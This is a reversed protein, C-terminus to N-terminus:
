GRSLSPSAAPVVRTAQQAQPDRTWDALVAAHGRSLRFPSAPDYAARAVMRRHLAPLRHWAVEPYLHHEVHYGINHPALLFREIPGCLTTRLGNGGYVAFHGALQRLRICMKLMTFIPVIWYLVFPRWGGWYTLGAVLVLYVAVRAIRWSRPLVPTVPLAVERARPGHRRPRLLRLGRKLQQGFTLALMDLLLPRLVAHWPRPYTWDGYEPSEPAQYRRWDPDDPTNLYDHHAVHNARYALMSFFLPWALLFEGVRDNLRSDRFLRAHSAEHMLVLLGQQRAGIVIVALAYLALSFHAECIAIALGIVAADVAFALAGRADSVECLDRLEAPAFPGTLAPAEPCADSRLPSQDRAGSACRCDSSTVTSPTTM